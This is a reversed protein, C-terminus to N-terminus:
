NVERPHRATRPLPGIERAPVGGAMGTVLLTDSGIKMEELVEVTAPLDRRHARWSEQDMVCVPHDERGLYTRLEEVTWISRPPRAAYFDISLWDPRPAFVATETGHARADAHAVLEPYPWVDNYRHNYLSTGYSLIVAMGVAAGHVLLAPRGVHLGWCMTVGVLGLGGIIPLLPLWSVDLLYLRPPGDWWDPTHFAVSMVVAGALAVWGLARGVAPRTTGHTDAWWAILLAAGPYISLSYRMKQNGSLALVVFPVAFWLLAFRVAPVKWARVARPLVLPALITWPLFGVAVTAALEGPHPPLRFYWTLWDGWITHEVFSRAGLSLFPGLWALTILVFLPIGVPSWLRRVGQRVGHETMLWVLASLLPLLGLPGKAFVACAVAVYFGALARRNVPETVSRWFAWGAITMCVVVLMDPLIQLSNGYFDGSTLLILAGWLGARPTFLRDGLLFTFLIVVITALAIPAQATAENVSGHLRAFAAILWPFLPPKEWTREGRVWIDFWVGRQLIDRAMLAYRAEDDGNIGGTAIVRQGVPPLVVLAAILSVLLGIAV